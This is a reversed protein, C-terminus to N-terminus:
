KILEPNSHIDGVVEVDNGISACKDGKRIVFQAANPHFAVEGLDYYGSSIGAEKDELATMFAKLVDGEYIEKGHRDLLGTFQMISWKDPRYFDGSYPVSLRDADVHTFIPMIGVNDCLKKGDWVRFKIQRMPTIQNGGDTGM